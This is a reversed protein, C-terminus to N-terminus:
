KVFGSVLALKTNLVELQKRDESTTDELDLFDGALDGTFDECVSKLLM